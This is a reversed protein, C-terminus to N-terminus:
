GFRYRWCSSASEQCRAFSAPWSFNHRKMVGSFGRGKSTGTVDVKKVEAFQDVTVTAGVELDTEVAFSAFSDSRSAILRPLWSSAAPPLSGRDSATWSRSM